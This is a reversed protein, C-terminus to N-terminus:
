CLAKIAYYHRLHPSLALKCKLSSSSGLLPWRRSQSVTIKKFTRLVETEPEPQSRRGGPSPARVAAPPLYGPGALWAWWQGSYHRCQLAVHTAEVSEQCMVVEGLEAQARNLVHCLTRHTPAPAPYDSVTGAGGAAARCQQAAGDNCFCCVKM